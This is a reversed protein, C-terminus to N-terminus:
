TEFKTSVTERQQEGLSPATGWTPHYWAGFLHVHYNRIPDWGYNVNWIIDIHSIYNGMNGQRLSGMGVLEKGGPPPEDHPATQQVTGRTGNFRRLQIARFMFMWLSVQGRHRPIPMLPHDIVVMFGLFKYPYFSSSCRSVKAASEKGTPTGQAKRQTSQLPSLLAPGRHPKSDMSLPQITTLISSHGDDRRRLPSPSALPACNKSHPTIKPTDSSALLARFNRAPAAIKPIPAGETPKSSSMDCPPNPPLACSKGVATVNNQSPYRAEMLKFFFYFLGFWWFLNKYLKFLLDHSNKIEQEEGELMMDTSKRVKHFSLTDWWKRHERFYINLVIAQNQLTSNRDQRNGTFGRSKGM